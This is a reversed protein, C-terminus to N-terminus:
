RIIYTYLHLHKIIEYKEDREGAERTMLFDSCQDDPLKALSTMVIHIFNPGSYIRLYYRYDILQIDNQVHTRVPPQQGGEAYLHKGNRAM